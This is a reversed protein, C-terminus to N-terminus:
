QRQRRAWYYYREWFVERSLEGAYSFLVPEFEPHFLGTFKKVNESQQRRTLKDTKTLVPLVPLDLSRFWEYAEKDIDLGVHRSDCLWIAGRLNERGECYDGILRSWRLQETRARQAHGYGPLDVWVSGDSVSFFNALTTKGPMKSVRALRNDAFVHNIFSSKGVNSRGCVCFERSKSKPIESFNAASFLFEAAPRQVANSKPM